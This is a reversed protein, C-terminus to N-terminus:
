DLRDGILRIWTEGALGNIFANGGAVRGLFAQDRSLAVTAARHVFICDKVLLAELLAPQTRGRLGVLGREFAHSFLQDVVDQMRGPAAAIQLVHAIGNPQAHYIFLGVPTQGRVVVSQVMTGYRSKQRADALMGSMDMCTWDPRVAYHATFRELLTVLEVDDVPRDSLGADPRKPASKMVRGAVHDLPLTALRLRGLAPKRMAVSALAFGAPKFVRVWELSYDPLIMGRLRRWLGQSIENATESLTIDQPGALFARLLRAGALPDRAREDVMLTGAFAARRKVGDVQFPMAIIGIFGSIAGDASQHVLSSIDPEASRSSVFVRELYELLSASPADDTKRLVTQFLRGIAPIDDATVPRVFSPTRGALELSAAPQAAREAQLVDDATPGSM